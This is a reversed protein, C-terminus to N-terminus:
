MAPPLKMDNQLESTVHRATNDHGQKLPTSCDVASPNVFLSTRSIIASLSALSSPTAPPDNLVPVRDVNLRRRRESRMPAHVHDTERFTLCAGIDDSHKHEIVRRGPPSCPTGAMSPPASRPSSPWPLPWRPAPPPLAQRINSAVEDLANSRAYRSSFRVRHRPSCYRSPGNSAVCKLWRV